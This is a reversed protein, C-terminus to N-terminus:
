VAEALEGYSAKQGSPGLVWSDQAKCASEAVNWKQAAAQVLVTRAQAGAVRLKDYADRVSTSGGTLQGGTMANIYPEGAPSMEIKVKSIDVELEEAILMPMSTYVGQGMESRACLITVRNDSGVRVWANPMASTVKPSERMSACGPLVFGVMLAGGTAAGAQLFGRRSVTDTNM